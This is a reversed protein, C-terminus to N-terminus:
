SCRGRDGPDYGSETGSMCTLFTDLFLPVAALLSPLLCGLFDAQQTTMPHGQCTELRSAIVRLPDAVPKDDPM